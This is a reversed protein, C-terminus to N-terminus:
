ASAFTREITAPLLPIVHKRYTDAETPVPIGVQHMFIQPRKETYAHPQWSAWSLAVRIGVRREAERIIKCPWSLWKGEWEVCTNGM